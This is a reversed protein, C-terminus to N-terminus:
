RALLSELLIELEFALRPLLVDDLVDVGVGDFFVMDEMTVVVM